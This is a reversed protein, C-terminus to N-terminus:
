RGSAPARAIDLIHADLLRNGEPTKLTILGLSPITRLVTGSHYLKGKHWAQLEEGTKLESVQQFIHEEVPGGSLSM